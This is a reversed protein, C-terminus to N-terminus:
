GDDFCIETLPILSIVMALPDSYYYNCTAMTHHVALTRSALQFGLLHTSFFVTIICVLLCVCSTM